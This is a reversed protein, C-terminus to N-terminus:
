KVKHMEGRLGQVTSSFANYKAFFYKISTTCFLTLSKANQTKNKKKKFLDFIMKSFSFIFVTKHSFFLQQYKLVKSFLSLYHKGKQGAFSSKSELM